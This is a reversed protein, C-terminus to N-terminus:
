TRKRVAYNCSLECEITAIFFLLLTCLFAILAQVRRVKLRAPSISKVFSSILVIQQHIKKKEIRNQNHTFWDGGGGASLGIALSKLRHIITFSNQREPISFTRDHYLLHIDCLSFLSFHPNNGISSVTYQVYLIESENIKMLALCSYM